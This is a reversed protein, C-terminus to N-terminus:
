VGQFQKQIALQEEKSLYSVSMIEEDTVVSGVAFHPGDCEIFYLEGLDNRVIAKNGYYGIITNNSRVTEANEPVKFLM